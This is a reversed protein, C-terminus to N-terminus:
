IKKFRILYIVENLIREMGQKDIILSAAKATKKKQSISPILIKEGIGLIAKAKLLKNALRNESQTQPIVWVPKALSMLEFLTTGCNTVAWDCSAMMQPLNNPNKYVEFNFNESSIERKNFPGQILKVSQNKNELYKSVKLSRNLIDAGGICVLVGKKEINTSISAIDKRIICYEFGEKHFTGINANEQENTNITLDPICESQWDLGVITSDTKRLEKFLSDNASPLDLLFVDPKFVDDNKLFNSKKIKNNIILSVYYGSDILFESFSTSRKIHGYGLQSNGESFLTFKYKDM